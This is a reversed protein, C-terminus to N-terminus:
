VRVQVSERCLISKLFQSSDSSDPLRDQDLDLAVRAFNLAALGCAASGSGQSGYQSTGAYCVVEGALKPSTLTRHIIRILRDEDTVKPM